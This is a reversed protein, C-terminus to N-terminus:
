LRAKYNQAMTIPQTSSEPAIRIPKLLALDDVKLLLLAHCSQTRRTSKHNLTYTPYCALVSAGLEVGRESFLQM